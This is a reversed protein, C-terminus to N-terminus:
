DNANEDGLEAARKAAAKVAAIFHGSVNAADLVQLARATTGGKSTVNARLTAPAESSQRALRMSGDFTAYALQRADAATLGLEVAAQELAELFYFVYAPGSGSVGTVADLDQERECWIVEGCAELIRAATAARERAEPTAYIASIGAGILAPTNPMARVIRRYGGLWRALDACRVGAAITLVLAVSDVSPALQRAADRMQQPKVALVVLDAGDIAAATAAAHLGLGPFRAALRERQADLPEVVRLDAAAAGRSILGGIIASAMNGGGVFTVKLNGGGRRAGFIATGLRVETAGEAIALELDASMGMSLTDVALGAARCADFCARLARFQERLREANATPEPIGMIGRLRLNPLTAVYRALELAAAPDVGSKTAEGSVNVQVLVNLPPRQAARAASLRDAIRPRDITEVWDFAAAAARAKNAQLPGILHWELDPLDALITRKDIAEQVYNEGFARQGLGHVARVDAASFTKSVALLRVSGAARGAARTADVIRQRAGQWRKECLGM